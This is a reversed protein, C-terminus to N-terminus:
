TKKVKKYGFIIGTHPVTSLDPHSIVSKGVYDNEQTGRAQQAPGDGFPIPKQLIVSKRGMERTPFPAELIGERKRHQYTESFIVYVKTTAYTAGYETTGRVSRVYMGEETVVFPVVLFYGAVCPIVNDFSPVRFLVKCNETRMPVAWMTGEIHCGTANDFLITSCGIRSPDDNSIRERKRLRHAVVYTEKTAPQAAAIASSSSKNKSSPFLRFGSIVRLSGLEKDLLGKNGYMKLAPYWTRYEEDWEIDLNLKERAQTFEQKIAVHVVATAKKKM